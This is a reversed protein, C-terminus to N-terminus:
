TKAFDICSGSLLMGKNKRLTYKYCMIYLSLATASATTTECFHWLQFFITFWETGLFIEFYQIILFQFLCATFLDFVIVHCPLGYVVCLKM